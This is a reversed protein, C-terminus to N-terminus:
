LIRQPQEKMEKKFLDILLEVNKLGAYGPRIICAIRRHPSPESLRMAKLEVYNGVLSELAMQPVLTSGLRGLVMQILTNLSTASLEHQNNGEFRCVALAQDKLCHGDKLLMLRAELLDTASVESQGPKADKQHSIWYFDEQWFEFSLLGEIDYPLALIATDIDGEKVAHVLEHSQAERVTLELQPYAKKIAPLVIPLLFPAITPIIGITIPFSLPSHQTEALKYLDDLQLKITRAKNLVEQGAPTILVRKNDREFIMFGLQKELESIATSLASQSVSSDEAANKFHLHREVALAYNLQRLTIM